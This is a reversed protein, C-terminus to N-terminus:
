NAGKCSFLIKFFFIKTEHNVITVHSNKLCNQYKFYLLINQRSTSVLFVIVLECPYLGNYSKNCFVSSFRVFTNQVLTSLVYLWKFFSWFINTKM